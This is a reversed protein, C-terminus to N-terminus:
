ELEWVIGRGFSHIQKAHEQLLNRLTSNDIDLLYNYHARLREWESFNIYVYKIGRAHLAERLSEVDVPARDIEDLPHRDFATSWLVTQKAYYARGEGVYLVKAEAPFNQNMWEIPELAGGGIRAIFEQRSQQGLVYTLISMRPPTHKPMEIDIVLNMGMVALGVIMVAAVLTRCWKDVADLAFAGVM